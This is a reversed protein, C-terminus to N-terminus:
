PKTEEKHLKSKVWAWWRSLQGSIKGPHAVQNFGIAYGVGGGIALGAVFVAIAEMM